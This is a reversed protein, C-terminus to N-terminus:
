AHGKSGFDEVRSLAYSSPYHYTIEVDDKLMSRLNSIAVRLTAASIRKRKSSCSCLQDFAVPNPSKKLLLGLLGIQRRSITDIADETIVSKLVDEPVEPVDGTLTAAYRRVLAITRAQAEPVPMKPEFVDDYGSNLLMARDRPNSVQLVAIKPRSRLLPRYLRMLQRLRRPDNGMVVVADFEGRGNGFDAIYSESIFSASSNPFALEGWQFQPLNAADGFMAIRARIERINPQAESTNYLMDSM